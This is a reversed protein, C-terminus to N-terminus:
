QCANHEVGLEVFELPLPYSQTPKCVSTHSTGKPFNLCQKDKEYKEASIVLDNEAWIIHARFCDYPLKDAYRDTQKRAETVAASSPSMGRKAASSVLFNSIIPLSAVIGFLGTLMEGGLAPAFLRMHAMLLGMALPPESEGSKNSDLFSQLNQERQAAELIAKRLLLGGESHGVLMLERYQFSRDRFPNEKGLLDTPNPFTARIFKYLGLTNNILQSFVSAWQYDFFYLDSAAWWEGAGPEDVLSLFDTWTDRASGNFGHVFVVAREVSQPPRTAMLGFSKDHECLAFKVHPIIEM